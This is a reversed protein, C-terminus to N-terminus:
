ETEGLARKSVSNVNIALHRLTTIYNWAGQSVKTNQTTLRKHAYLIYVYLYIYVHIYIHIYIHISSFFSYIYVYIYIYIYIYIYCLHLLPFSRNETVRLKTRLCEDSLSYSVLAKAGFESYCLILRKREANRSDVCQVNYMSCKYVPSSLM